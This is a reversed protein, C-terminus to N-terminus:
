LPKKEKIATKKKNIAMRAMNNNNRRKANGYEM